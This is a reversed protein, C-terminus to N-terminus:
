LRKKHYECKCECFIQSWKIRRRMGRCSSSGKSGRRMRIRLMQFIAAGESSATNESTSLRQATLRPLGSRNMGLQSVRSTSSTSASSLLPSVSHPTNNASPVSASGAAASSSSSSSSSPIRRRSSRNLDEVKKVFAEPVRKDIRADLIYRVDYFIIEHLQAGSGLDSETWGEHKYLIRAAGGPKNIGIWQRPLVNVEDGPNHHHHVVTTTTCVAPVDSTTSKKSAVPEIESEMESKMNAISSTQMPQRTVITNTAAPDLMAGVHTAGAVNSLEVRNTQIAEISTGLERQVKRGLANQRLREQHKQQFEANRSALAIANVANRKEMEEEPDFYNAYDCFADILDAFQPAAYLNRKSIKKSCMPCSQKSQVAEEICAKCFWHGCSVVTPDCYKELCIGCKTVKRFEDVDKFSFAEEMEAEDNM